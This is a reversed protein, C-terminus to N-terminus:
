TLKWNLFFKNFDFGALTRELVIFYLISNNGRMMLQFFHLLMSNLICPISIIRYDSLYRGFDSVLIKFPLQQKEVIGAHYCHM